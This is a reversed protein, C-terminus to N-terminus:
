YDDIAQSMKLKTIKRGGIRTGKVERKHQDREQIGRGKTHNVGESHYITDEELLKRLLPHM